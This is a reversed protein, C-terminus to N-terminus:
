APEPLLSPDGRRPRGESGRPIREDAWVDYVQRHLIHAWDFMVKAEPALKAYAIEIAGEELPVHPPRVLIRRTLRNYIDEELLSAPADPRTWLTEYLIAHGYDFAYFLREAANYNRRFSWNHSAPLYTQEYVTSWQAAAPAASVTVGATTVALMLGALLGKRPSQRKM